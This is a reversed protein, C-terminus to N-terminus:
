SKFDVDLFLSSGFAFPWAQPLKEQIDPVSFLRPVVGVYLEMNEEALTLRLEEPDSAFVLHPLPEGAVNGATHMKKVLISSSFNQIAEEILQRKGSAIGRPLRYTVHDVRPMLSRLLQDDVVRRLESRTPKALVVNPDPLKLRELLAFVFGTPLLAEMAQEQGSEESYSEWTLGRDKMAHLVRHLDVRCRTPLGGVGDLHKSQGCQPLVTGLIRQAHRFRRLLRSSESTGLQMMVIGPVYDHPHLTALQWVYRQDGVHWAGDEEDCVIDRDSLEDLALQLQAWCELEDGRAVEYGPQLDNDERLLVLESNCADEATVPQSYASPPRSEQGGCLQLVAMGDVVARGTEEFSRRLTEFASAAGALWHGENGALPNVLAIPMGSNRNAPDVASVMVHRSGSSLQLVKSAPRGMESLSAGVESWTTLYEAAGSTLRTLAFNARAHQRTADRLNRYGIYRSAAELAHCHKLALGAQRLEAELAKAVDDLRRTPLLALTADLEIAQALTFSQARAHIFTWLAVARAHDNGPLQQAVSAM